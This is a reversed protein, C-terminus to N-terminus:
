QKVRVKDILSCPRALVDLPAGGDCKKERRVRIALLARHERLEEQPLSAETCMERHTLTHIHTDTLPLIVADRDTQQLSTIRWSLFLQSCVDADGTLVLHLTDVHILHCLLEFIRESVGDQHYSSWSVVLESAIWHSNTTLQTCIYMYM